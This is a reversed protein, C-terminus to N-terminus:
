VDETPEVTRRVDEVERQHGAAPGDCRGVTGGADALDIAPLTRGRVGGAAGEAM